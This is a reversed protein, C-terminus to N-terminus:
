LSRRGEFKFTCGDKDFRDKVVGLCWKRVSSESIYNARAAETISGYADVIDGSRTVKLVTKRQNNNAGLRRYFESHTVWELNSARNDSHIGNRHWVYPKNQPNKIFAEAVIRAVTKCKQRRIGDPFRVMVTSGNDSTVIPKLDVKRRIEGFPNVEYRDFGRITMWTDRRVFM